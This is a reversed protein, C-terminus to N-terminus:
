VSFYHDFKENGPLGFYLSGLVNQDGRTCPSDGTKRLPESKNICFHGDNIEGKYALRAENLARSKIEAFRLTKNKCVGM